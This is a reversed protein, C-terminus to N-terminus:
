WNRKIKSLNKINTNICIIRVIKDINMSHRACNFTEVLSVCYGPSLESVYGTSQLGKNNGEYQIQCPRLSNKTTNPPAFGLKEHNRRGHLTTVRTEHM